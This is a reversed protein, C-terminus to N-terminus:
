IYYLSLDDEDVYLTDFTRGNSAFPYALYQDHVDWSEGEYEGDTIITPLWNISYDTSGGGSQGAVTFSVAGTANTLSLSGTTSNVYTWVGTAGTVTPGTTPCTYTTGDFSFTLTVPYDGVASEWIADSNTSAATANVLTVTIPYKTITVTNSAGSTGYMYSAGGVAVVSLAHTGVGLNAINYLTRTGTSDKTVYDLVTTNDLIYYGVVDDTASSAIISIAYSSLTITPTPAVLGASVVLRANGGNWNEPRLIVRGRTNSIWQWEIAKLGDSNYGIAAASGPCGGAPFDYYVVATSTEWASTNSVSTDVGCGTCTSTISYRTVLVNNSPRTYADGVAAYVTFAHVGPSAAVAAYNYRNTNVVAGPIEVGDISVRYETAGPLADWELVAGSTARRLNTPGPQLLVGTISIRLPASVGTLTLHGHTADDRVWAYTVGGSGLM